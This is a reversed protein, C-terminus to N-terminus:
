IKHFRSNLCMVSNKMGDRIIEREHLRWDPLKFEQSYIREFVILETCSFRGPMGQVTNSFEIQPNQNSTNQLYPQGFIRKGFRDFIELTQITEIEVLAQVICIMDLKSKQLLLLTPLENKVEVISWKISCFEYPSIFKPLVHETANKSLEKIRDDRTKYNQSVSHVLNKYVQTLQLRLSDQSFNQNMQILYKLADNHIKRNKYSLKFEKAKTSIKETLTNNSSPLTQNEANSKTQTILENINEQL